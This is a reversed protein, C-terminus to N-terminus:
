LIKFNNILFQRVDKNWRDTWDDPVLDWFRVTYVRKNKEGLWEYKDASLQGEMVKQWDSDIFVRVIIPKAYSPVQQPYDTDNTPIFFELDIYDAFNTRQTQYYIFESPLVLSFGLDKNQYHYNGDEAPQDMLQKKCGSLGFAFLIILILAIARKM